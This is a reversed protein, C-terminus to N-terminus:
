EIVGFDGFTKKGGKKCGKEDEVASQPADARLLLLNNNLHQVPLQTAFYTM